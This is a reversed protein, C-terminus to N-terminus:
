SQQYHSAAVGCSQCLYIYYIGEGYADIDGVALQAIFVMLRGCEPCEPYYADQIWTPHGGLQSLSDGLSCWYAAEIWHRTRTSFVLADSPLDPWEGSDEPLFAPRESATHWNAEGNLGIKTVVTGYCTCVHCTAIRLRQGPIGLFALEPRSISLDLMTTMNRDCWGCSDEHRLTLRLTNPSTNEDSPAILPHCERLFM